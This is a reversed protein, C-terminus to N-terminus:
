GLFTYDIREKKRYLLSDIFFKSAWAPLMNPMYEGNIPFSGSISGNVEKQNNSIQKDYLSKYLIESILNKNISNKKEYILAFYMIQASGTLCNYDVVKEFKDNIIGKLDNATSLQKQIRKYFFSCHDILEKKLNLDELKEYYAFKVIAVLHYGLLHTLANNSKDFNCSEPWYNKTKNNIIYQLSKLSAEKFKIENTVDYLMMLIWSVRSKYTTTIKLFTFNKNWSGDKNLNQTLFEGMKVATNLFKRNNSALYLSLLGIIAQATTFIRPGPRYFGYAEGLGGDDRTIDIIWEGMEKSINYIKDNQKLKSYELLTPIIYGTTEPFSITLKKEVLDYATCIGRDLSNKQCTLLWNISNDILEKEFDNNKSPSYEVKINNLFKNKKIFLCCYKFFYVLDFINHCLYIRLLNKKNDFFNSNLKNYIQIFLERNSSDYTFSQCLYQWAIDKNKINKKYLEFYKSSMNKNISKKITYYLIIRMMDKLLKIFIKM